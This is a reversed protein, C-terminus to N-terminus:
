NHYSIYLYRPRTRAQLIEAECRSRLNQLRVHLRTLERSIHRIDDISQREYSYINPLNPLNEKLFWTFVTDTEHLKDDVETLTRQIEIGGSRFRQALVATNQLDDYSCSFVQADLPAAHIQM